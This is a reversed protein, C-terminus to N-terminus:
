ELDTKEVLTLSQIRTHMELEQLRTESRGYQESLRAVIHLGTEMGERMSARPDTQSLLRANFGGGAGYGSNRRFIRHRYRQRAIKEHQGGESREFTFM